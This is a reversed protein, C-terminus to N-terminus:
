KNGGSFLKMYVVRMVARLFYVIRHRIAQAVSLQIAGVSRLHRIMIEDDDIVQKISLTSTVNWRSARYSVLPEAVYAVNGEVSVRIWMDLDTAYKLDKFFVGTHKLVSRKFLVNSPEGYINRKMLAEKALKKGQIVKDCRSYRRVFLLKGSGDIIKTASFVLSISSDSLAVGVKRTICDPEMLDDSCLLHIYEGAAFSMTKNWNGVMGLNHNNRFLKLRPDSISKLLEYTRDTSCDDVVVVELKSYSQALASNVATMVTTEGNYAPICISVLPSSDM